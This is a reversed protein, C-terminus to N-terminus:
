GSGFLHTLAIIDHIDGTLILSVTPRAVAESHGVPQRNEKSSRVFVSLRQLWSPFQCPGLQGKKTWLCKAPSDNYCRPVKCCQCGGDWLKGLACWYHSGTLIDSYLLSLPMHTSFCLGGHERPMSISVSCLLEMQQYAALWKDTITLPRRTELMVGQLLHYHLLQQFIVSSIM